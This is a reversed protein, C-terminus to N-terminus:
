SEPELLLREIREMLEKKDIESESDLLGILKRIYELKVQDQHIPVPPKPPGGRGELGTSDATEQEQPIPPKRIAPVILHTRAARTSFFGAQDASEMLTRYAVAINKGTIGFKSRLLNKLGFEPPLEKGRYEEYIAEFLPVATFAEVLGEQAHEPLVPMLIKQALPMLVFGSREPVILNFLRAAAVRSLFAGSNTTSYGLFAALQERNAFGGGKEHIAKAVGVSDALSYFPFRVEAPKRRGREPPTQNKAAMEM